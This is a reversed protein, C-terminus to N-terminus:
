TNPNDLITKEHNGIILYKRGKLQDLYWESPRKSKYMFDGVIYVEDKDTVRSNWNAILVQDMEEISLFPRKDFQIVSSHGLHMDAIYFKM